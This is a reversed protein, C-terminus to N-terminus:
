KELTYYGIMPPAPRAGHEFYRPGQILGDSFKGFIRIMPINTKLNIVFSSDSQMNGYIEGIGSEGYQSTETGVTNIDRNGTITFDNLQINIIGTAFLSSDLDYSNYKYRDEIVYPSSSIGNDSYCGLIFNLALLGAIILLLKKFHNM